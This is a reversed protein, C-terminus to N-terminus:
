ANTFFEHGGYSFLRVLAHDFWKMKEPDAYKRAAFFLAGQTVDEGSLVREVAERTEETVQVNQYSGNAVPSFQYVGDEQQMVVETVTDPFNESKVRNMVVGAVLMKGFEDESGAEAQVIRLLADYDEESLHYCDEKELVAYDVIRQGSSAKKLGVHLRDTEVKGCDATLGLTFAERAAIRDLQSGKVCFWGM